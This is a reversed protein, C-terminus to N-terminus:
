DGQRKAERSEVTARYEPSTELLGRHLHGWVVTAIGNGLLVADDDGLGSAIPYEVPGLVPWIQRTRELSVLPPSGHLYSRLGDAPLFPSGSVVLLALEGVCICATHFFTGEVPTGGIRLAEGGTRYGVRTSSANRSGIWVGTGDPPVRHQYLSHALSDPVFNPRTPDSRALTMATKMAWRAVPIQAETSLDVAEGRVLPEIVAKDAEMWGGNCPGCALRVQINMVNSQVDIGPRHTLDTTDFDTDRTTRRSSKKGDYGVIPRLWRAFIHERTTPSGGCFICNDVGTGKVPRGSQAPVEGSSARAEDSM